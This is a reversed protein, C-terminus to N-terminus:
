KGDFGNKVSVDEKTAQSSIHRIWIPTSLSIANSQTSLRTMSQSSLRNVERASESDFSDRRSTSTTRKSPSSKWFGLVPRPSSSPSPRTERTQSPTSSNVPMRGRRVTRGTLGFELIEEMVVAAPNSTIGEFQPRKMTYGYFSSLVELYKKKSNQSVGRETLAMLYDEVHRIEVENPSLDPFQDHFFERLIRSYSNLTRESRGTAHKRTIFYNVEDHKNDYVKSSGPEAGM